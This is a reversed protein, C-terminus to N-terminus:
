QPIGNELAGAGDSDTPFPFLPVILPPWAVGNASISLMVAAPLQDTHPWEDLWQPHRNWAGPSPALFGIAFGELGALLTHRPAGHWDPIRGAGTFPRYQLVLPSGPQDRDVYLRLHHLGGVGHRAPLTGIWHLQGRSGLFSAARAEVHEFHTSDALGGLSSRLFVPLLRLEESRALGQEIRASAKGFAFLTSGLGLMLLATLSVAILVEVLTFGRPMGASPLSDPSAAGSM